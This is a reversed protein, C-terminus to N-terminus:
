LSTIRRTYKERVIIIIICCIIFCIVGLVYSMVTLNRAYRNYRTAVEVDGALFRKKAQLLIFACFM